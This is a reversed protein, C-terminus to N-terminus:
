LYKLLTVIAVDRSEVHLKSYIRKLHNKITHTSRFLKEAIKDNSLGEALLEAVQLEKRSLLKELSPLAIEVFQLGDSTEFRVQYGESELRSIDSPLANVNIKKNKAIGLEHAFTMFNDEAEVVIGFRDLVAKTVHGKSQPVLMSLLNFRFAQLLFPLVFNLTELDSQGFRADFDARYVSIAHSVSTVDSPAVLAAVANEVGFPACHDTYYISKHWQEPSVVQWLDIFQNPNSHLYQNLTDPNDPITAIKFYNAMFEDPQRYLHSDEVWHQNIKNFMDSRTTWLGSDFQVLTTLHDFCFRKFAPVECSHATVFLKKIWLSTQDNM